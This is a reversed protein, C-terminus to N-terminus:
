ASISSCKQLIKIVEMCAKVDHVRLISAGKEIALAHLVTTGNLADQPTCNLVRQIMSKRSIGVLVPLKFSQFTELNNIVEYNDELSKGFGFGPDLIIDKQGLIRLQAVQESLRKLMEPVISEKAPVAYTLIYPLGMSAVLPFMEPDEGGSVDNIIVAGFEDACQKAVNARFTDISVVTDPAERRVIKLAYQLRKLEEQESVETAGPRTSYGGIDIISGGEDIIQQVRQAIEAETQKRSDSFFSDPTINLIGMVIPQSLVILQGGINLSYSESKIM